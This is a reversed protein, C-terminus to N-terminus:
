SAARDRGGTASPLGLSELEADDVEERQVMFRLLKQERCERLMETPTTADNVKVIRDGPKVAKGAGPGGVCLKNWAQMAGGPKVGTVQLFNGMDTHNVDLGLSCDDAKRITFGFITGGSECIVFPSQPVAPSKMGPHHKSNPLRLPSRKPSMFHGMRGPSPFPKPSAFRSGDADPDGNEKQSQMFQLAAKHMEEPTQRAKEELVPKPMTAAVLPTRAAPADIAASLSIPASFPPAEVLADLPM